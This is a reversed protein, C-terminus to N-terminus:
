TQKFNQLMKGSLEGPIVAFLQFIADGAGRFRIIKEVSLLQSFTQFGFNLQDKVESVFFAIRFCFNQFLFNQFLFNQFLFHPSFYFYIFIVFFRHM